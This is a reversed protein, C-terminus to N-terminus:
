AGNVPPKPFKRDPDFIKELERTDKEKTAKELAEALAKSKKSDEWQKFLAQLKSSLGTLLDIIKPLAALLGLIAGMIATFSM